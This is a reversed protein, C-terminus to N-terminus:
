VINKYTEKKIYGKKNYKAKSFYGESTTTETKLNGNTYYTYKRTITEITDEDPRKEVIKVLRNNRNM